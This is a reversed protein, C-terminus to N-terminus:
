TISRFHMGGELAGTVKLTCRVSSSDQSSAYMPAADSDHRQLGSRQRAVPRAADPTPCSGTFGDRVVVNIQSIRLRKPSVGDEL